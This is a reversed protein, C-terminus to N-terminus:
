TTIHIREKARVRFSEPYVNPVGDSDTTEIRVEGEVFKDLGVPLSVPGGPAAVLTVHVPVWLGPKYTGGADEVAGSRFGIKVKEFKMTLPPQQARGAPALALPAALAVLCALSPTRMTNHGHDKDEAGTPAVTTLW